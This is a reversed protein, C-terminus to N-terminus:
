KTRSFRFGNSASATYPQCLGVYGVSQLVKETNADCSFCGGREMRHSGVLGLYWDFCWEFVNGSMDYLGLANAMKSKVVATSSVGYVAVLGTAITDSCSATAGSASNGKTYYPSTYGSVTNTSDTGRYRAAYEYEASTPLRFGKATCNEMDTNGTTSAKIYPYDQTGATPFTTSTSYTSTRLPTTYSSDTYYICTLDVEPGNNANYYETFANCWVIADRWDIAVVPHQTSGSTNNFGNGGGFCFTYGNSEAWTKVTSWLEYTTLTEAMMFPKSIIGTNSDDGSRPFTISTSLTDETTQIESVNLGGPFYYTIKSAIGSGTKIFFPAVPVTVTATYAKTSGDAATVSYTVPSTFNQSVGSAPSVRVGTHTITPTLSSKDTNYPVTVAISTGSITGANGLISFGTIDKASSPAVTVTVTYAKTSGDAATVTYIVPDTFNQSVGSAPSIIAGTHTITPSFVSGSTGFPMTVAIVMGNIASSSQGSIEFKTIDKASNKAITVTVMYVAISGDQATITYNKPTTFNNVSESSIQEVSGISTKVGTTVFKAVLKSVDTGYPVTVSIAKETEDIVGVATVPSTLEFSTIEKSSVSAPTNGGKSGGGSCGAMLMGCVSLFAIVSCLKKM